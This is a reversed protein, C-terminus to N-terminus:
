SNPFEKDVLASSYRHSYRYSPPAISGYISLNNSFSWGWTYKCYSLAGQWEVFAVFCHNASLWTSNSSQGACDESNHAMSWRHCMAFSFTALCLAADLSCYEFFPSLNRWVKAKFKYNGYGFPNLSNYFSAM